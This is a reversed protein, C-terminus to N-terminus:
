SILPVLITELHCTLISINIEGSIEKVCCMIVPHPVLSVIWYVLLMLMKMFTTILTGLLISEFLQM